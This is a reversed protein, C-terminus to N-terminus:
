VECVEIGLQRAFCALSAGIRGPCAIIHHSFGLGLLEKFYEKVPKDVKVILSCESIRAPPCDLIACESIFMKWAGRHEILHALTVPGPAYTVEFGPANGDFGWNECAPKLTIPRDKRAMSPDIFGHGLILVANLQTDVEEWEGFFPTLGTLDGMVKGVILGLVDGETVAAADRTRLLESLGLFCSTQAEVEIFHQGLLALGDINYREVLVKFAVGLRAARRLEEESLGSIEYNRKATDVIATVRDDGLAVEGLIGSLHKIDIDMIHPGLKGSLSTKDYQFDYMGRFIHGILGINWSKLDDIIGRVKVFRAIEEYAEPDDISGVVTHYNPYKDMKKFGCALQVIGMPGSNALSEKYGSEFDIRDKEQSAFLLVAMSEPLHLLAQHVLYDACYTGQAVVILAVGGDRLAKGAADAKDITDVLGPYVLDGMTALGDAVRRMNREVRERLGEYMRWYEFFGVGLFGIKPRRARTRASLLDGSSGGRTVEFSEVVAEGMFIRRLGGDM